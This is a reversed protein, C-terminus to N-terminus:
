GRSGDCRGCTVIEDIVHQVSAVCSEYEGMKYVKLAEDLTMTNMERTVKIQEIHMLDGCRPCLISKKRQGIIRMVEPSQM